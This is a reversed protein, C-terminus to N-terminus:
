PYDCVWDMSPVPPVSCGSLVDVGGDVGEIVVTEEATIAGEWTALDYGFLHYLRRLQCVRSVILNTRDAPSLKTWSQKVPVSRKVSGMRYPSSEYHTMLLSLHEREMATDTIRRKLATLRGIGHTQYFRLTDGGVLRWGDHDVADIVGVTWAWMIVVEATHLCQLEEFRRIAAIIKAPTHLFELWTYTATFLMRDLVTRRGEETSLVEECSTFNSRRLHNRWLSSSAFEILVIVSDMPEHYLIELSVWDWLPPDPTSQFPDGVAQLLKALDKYPASEMQSSFWGPMLKRFADLALGRSQLYHTPLLISSLIPLITACFGATEQINLIMLAIFGPYPPPEMEYFREGLSLFGLLLPIWARQVPFTGEPTGYHSLKGLSEVVRSAMRYRHHEKYGSNLIETIWLFGLEASDM